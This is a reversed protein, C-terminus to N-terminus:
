KQIFVKHTGDPITFEIKNNDPNKDTITKNNIELSKANAIRWEIQTSKKATIYGENGKLFLTVPYESKFHFRPYNVVTAKRFFFFVPETKNKRLIVLKGNFSIKDFTIPINGNSALIIDNVGTDFSLDVGSYGDGNLRVMDAKQHQADHPFLVTLIQNDGMEDTEYVAELRYHKGSAPSRELFGSEIYSQNVNKPATAYFVSVKVGKTKAHHDIISQYEQLSKISKVKSESALQLYSNIKEGKDADVEDLVVFYGNAQKTGHVLVLSRKFSDDGLADESFGCAYDLDEGLLGESLGAGTRKNHRKRDITLTNNKWPPRMDDGLWGGNVLLRAGYASLSIANVEEHTHWEDNEDINYLAAGLSLPSDEPERFVAGGHMFLRSQPVKPEPLPEEMLIYSLVHGPPEKGQLLWAAYSAAQHDFRGVRWFLASNGPRSTPSVDGFMYFERAPTISASFLWRYFSALQPNNYYRKDLGTFELVDAYATKQLRGDKSGLRAFAYGPSVTSVGDRTMQHIYNYFFDNDPYRRNGKYIAWTGHTGLRAAPWAGCWHIKNIQKEIVIECQKIEEPELSNYVIDLALICTFAAAMPSVTGIHRQKPDFVAKELGDVIAFYIREAHKESNVTDIIYALACAGAYNQLSVAYSKADDGKWNKKSLELAKEKMSKWPEKEARERFEPFQAQNCILFPHEEVSADLAPPLNENEHTKGSRTFLFCFLVLCLFVWKRCMM